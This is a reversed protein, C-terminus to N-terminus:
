KIIKIIMLFGLGSASSKTVCTNQQVTGWAGALRQQCTGTGGLGLGGEQLQSPGLQHLHEDPVSGLQHPIGKGKGLFLRRGNDEDILQIGNTLVKPFPPPPFLFPSHTSSQKWGAM